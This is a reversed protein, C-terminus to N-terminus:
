IRSGVTMRPAAVKAARGKSPASAAPAPKQAPGHKWNVSYSIKVDRFMLIYYSVLVAYAALIQDIM